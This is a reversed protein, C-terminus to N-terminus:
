QPQHHASPGLSLPGSAKPPRESTVWGLRTEQIGLVEERIINRTVGGLYRSFSEMECLSFGPRLLNPLWM